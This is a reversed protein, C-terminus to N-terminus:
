LKNNLSQKLYRSYNNEINHICNKFDQRTHYYLIATPFIKKLEDCEDSIVPLGCALADFIRNNIFQKQLIDDWHDNLTVKASRYINPLEYNELSPSEFFIWIIKSYLIGAVEGCVFRFIEDIAWMVCNRAVGRSNGIFMYDWKKEQHKDAPFFLETDTCQLLPFVPVKVENRIIEAYYDSAICVVDYLNYEDITIKDPHSINWMM